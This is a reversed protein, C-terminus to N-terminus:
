PIEKWRFCYQLSTLRLAANALRTQLKKAREHSADSPRNPFSSPLAAVTEDFADLATEVALLRKRLEMLDNSAASM